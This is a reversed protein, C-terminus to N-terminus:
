VVDIRYVGRRIRKATKSKRILGHGKYHTKKIARKDVIGFAVAALYLQHWQLTDTYETKRKMIRGM